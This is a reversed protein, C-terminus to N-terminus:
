CNKMSDEKIKSIRKKLEEDLPVWRYTIPCLLESPRYDGKYAMKQNDQIYFGM